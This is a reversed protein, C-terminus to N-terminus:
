FVEFSHYTFNVTVESPTDESYGLSIESIGVPYVEFVGITRTIEGEASYINIAMEGVIDNYYAIRYNPYGGIMSVWKNIADYENIHHSNYFSLSLDDYIEQTPVKRKPGIVSHEFSGISHGPIVARHCNLFIERDLSVPGTIIVDYRYPELLPHEKIHGVINQINFYEKSM